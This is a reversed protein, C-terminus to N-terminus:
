AKIGDHNGGEVIFSNKLKDRGRKLRTKVTSTNLQLMESVEEISLEKLYFLIIVERYKLPLKMVQEFLQQNELNKVLLIDPQENLYDKEQTFSDTIVMKRYAWSRLYDKSKNIAIRYVWTKIQSEERFGELHLYVSVFVEQTLDETVTWNKTFSFILRKIEEGFRNM